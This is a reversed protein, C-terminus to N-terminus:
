ENILVTTYGLVGPCHVEDLLFNVVLGESEEHPSAPVFDVIWDWEAPILMGCLFHLLKEGQSGPFYCSMRDYTLPGIRIVLKNWQRYSEMDLVADVGLLAEGLGSFHSGVEAYYPGSQMELACYDSLMRTFCREMERLNGAVRHAIVTIQLLDMNENETLGLALTEPWFIAVFERLFGTESGSLVQSEFHGIRAMQRILLQDFPGLFLRADAEQEKESQRISEWEDQKKSTLVSKHFLREPLMDFLGDRPTAAKYRFHGAKTAPVDDLDAIDGEFFKSSSKGPSFMVEGPECLGSESLENLVYELRLRKVPVEALLSSIEAALLGHENYM